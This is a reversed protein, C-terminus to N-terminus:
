KKQLGDASAGDFSECVANYSALADQNSTLDALDESMQQCLTEIELLEVARDLLATQSRQTKSQILELRKKTTLNIRVSPKTDQKMGTM